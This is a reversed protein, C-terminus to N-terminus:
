VPEGVKYSARRTPLYSPLLSKLTTRESSAAYRSSSDPGMVQCMLVAHLKPPCRLLANPASPGNHARLDARAESPSGDVAMNFLYRMSVAPVHHAKALSSINKQSSLGVNGPCESIATPRNKKELRHLKLTPVLSQFLTIM